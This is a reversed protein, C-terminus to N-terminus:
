INNNKHKNNKKIIYEVFDRVAGFGGPKEAVYEANKKIESVADAPCGGLGCTKICDLDNLDDGIYAIEEMTVTNENAITKIQVLKDNIGQYVLKVGIEKARNDVIKSTRGTIIIPTIGYKPLMEKIAYGDKIDFVKFLEGEQGMYLKGDTLTGDVDMILMKITCIYSEIM